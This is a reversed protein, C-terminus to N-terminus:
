QEQGGSIEDAADDDDMPEPEPYQEDFGGKEAFVFSM